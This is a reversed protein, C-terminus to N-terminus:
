DRSAVYWSLAASSSCTAAHADVTTCDTCVGNNTYTSQPCPAVCTGHYLEYSLM